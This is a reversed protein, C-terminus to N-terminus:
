LFSFLLIQPYWAWFVVINKLNMKSRWRVSVQSLNKVPSPAWLSTRSRTLFGTMGPLWTGQKKTKKWMVTINMEGWAQQNYVFWITQLGQGNTAVGPGAERKGLRSDWSVTSLVVPSEHLCCRLIVPWHSPAQLSKGLSTSQSDVSLPPSEFLRVPSFIRIRLWSLELFLVASLFERPGAGRIQKRSAM